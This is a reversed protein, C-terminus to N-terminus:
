GSRRCSRIRRPIVAAFFLVALLLALGALGFEGLIAAFFAFICFGFDAALLGFIEGLRVL